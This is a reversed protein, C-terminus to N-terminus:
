GTFFTMPEQKLRSEAMLFNGLNVHRAMICPSMDGNADIMLRNDGCLGCLEAEIQETRAGDGNGARGVKRQKDYGIQQVGLSRLFEVTEEIYAANEPLEIVAVRLPINRKVAEKINKILAGLTLNSNTISRHTAPRKSYFSTALAVDNEEISVWDIERSFNTYVEIFPFGLDGRAYSILEYLHPHITPEGGIFQIGEFGQHFAYKLLRRWDDLQMKGTAPQEPSSSAYCHSCAFNCKLTIECWLLKM